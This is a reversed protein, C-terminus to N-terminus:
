PEGCHKTKAGIMSLAPAGRDSRPLLSWFHSVTRSTELSLKRAGQGLQLDISEARRIVWEEAVTPIRSASNSMQPVARDSATDRLRMDESGSRHDLCHVM